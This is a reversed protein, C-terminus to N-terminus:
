CCGKLVILDSNGDYVLENNEVNYMFGHVVVTKNDVDKLFVSVFFWEDTGSVFSNSVDFVSYNEDVIINSIVGKKILKNRNEIDNNIANFIGYLVLFSALIAVVVTGIIKLNEIARKKM